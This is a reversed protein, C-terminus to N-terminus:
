RWLAISAFTLPCISNEWCLESLLKLKAKATTATAKHFIIESSSISHTHASTLMQESHGAMQTITNSARHTGQTGQTYTGHTHGTHARHTGSTVLSSTNVPHGSRRQDIIQSAAGAGERPLPFM